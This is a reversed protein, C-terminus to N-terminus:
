IANKQGDFRVHVSADRGDLAIDLAQDDSAVLADGFATDVHDLARPANEAAEVLLAASRALDKLKATQM